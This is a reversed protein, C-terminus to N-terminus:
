KSPPQAAPPPAPPVSPAPPAPAASEPTRPQPLTFVMREAVWGEKDFLVILGEEYYFLPSEGEKGVRAPQGWGLIVTPRIFIGPKPELRLERVVDPKYGDGTLLGFEITMRQIGRPARSGEYAWETTDYGEVKLPTSKTPQDYRARVSDKTSQGPTIAGWEAASAPVSGAAGACVLLVMVLLIPRM